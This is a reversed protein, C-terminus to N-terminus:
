KCFLCHLGFPVVTPVLSFACALHLEAWLADRLLSNLQGRVVAQRHFLVIVLM